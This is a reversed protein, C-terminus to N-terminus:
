YKSGRDRRDTFDPEGPVSVVGKVTTFWLRGDQGRWAAPQYGGSCELSPLGDSRGFVSVTVVNTKSQAFDNLASKAVSFVGKHSGMWLRGQGDDIIQSIVNDPLGAKKGYRTFRGDQFHLLGGRFTGAWVSGDPEALLSWIACSKQDDLPQFLTATNNSICYIEGDDTGAWVTGKGDECLSRVFHKPM